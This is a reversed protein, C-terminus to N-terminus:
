PLKYEKELFALLEPSTTTKMTKQILDIDFCSNLIAQMEDKEIELQQYDIFARGAQDDKKAILDALEVGRDM